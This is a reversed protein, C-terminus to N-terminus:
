YYSNLGRKIMQNARLSVYREVKGNNWLLPNGTLKNNNTPTLGQKSHDFLVDIQKKGKTETTSTSLWNYAKKLPQKKLVTCVTEANQPPPSHVLPITSDSSHSSTSLSSHSGPTLPYETLEIKPSRSSAQRLQQQQQQQQQQQELLLQKVFQKKPTKITSDLALRKRLPLHSVPPLTATAKAENTLPSYTQKSSPGTDNRQESMTSRLKWSTFDIFRIVFSEQYVIFRIVQSIL